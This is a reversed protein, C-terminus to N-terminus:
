KRLLVYVAGTGGDCPQASTFAIIDNIQKLWHNVMTKIMPPKGRGGKGHIIIICRLHCKMCDAIFLDVRSRAQEITLGHLDLIEEIMIQGQKLKQFQRNQVGATKFSLQQNSTCYNSPDIFDSVCYIEEANDQLHTHTVKKHPRIATHHVRNQPKLPRSDSVESRFLNQDEKSITIKKKM